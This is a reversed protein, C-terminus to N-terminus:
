KLNSVAKRHTTFVTRGYGAQKLKAVLSKMLATDRESPESPVLIFITEDKKIQREKFLSPIEEKTITRDEFLIAGSATIQIEPERSDAVRTTTSCGAVLVLGSALFLSRFSVM